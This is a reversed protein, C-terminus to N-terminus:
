VSFSGTFNGDKKHYGYQTIDVPILETSLNLEKAINALLLGDIGIYGVNNPKFHFFNKKSSEDIYSM